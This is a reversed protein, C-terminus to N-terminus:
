AGTSPPYESRDVVHAPHGDRFFRAVNEVALRVSRKEADPAFGACHPTGVVNPLDAFAFRSVLRASVFDEEWWVDLAARFEPHEKLHRYLASEDVTGARGVNVFVADPRMRRLAEAGISGATRGTLPRAEFVFNAASLADLLRDAPYMQDCGSVATGDRSVGEIRMGFGRLREAIGRGIEGYGLVLATAGYLVRQVPPPRLRGDHVMRDAARLDRAAALGIAVAHEAVFPAYAGVNGAILVSSPFRDFPFGDLGTFTRQVFRLRPTSQPDFDRAERSFSGVLLAEVESREAVPSSALYVWPVDPLQERLAADLEARPTVAVLLRPSDENV